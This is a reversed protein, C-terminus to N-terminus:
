QHYGGVMVFNKEDDDLFYGFCVKVYLKKLVKMQGVDGAAFRLM